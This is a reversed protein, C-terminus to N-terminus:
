VKGGIQGALYAAYHDTMGSLFDGARMYCQYYSMDAAPQHSVMLDLIRESRFNPQRGAEHSGKIDNVAGILATLLISINTYAGVEIENKRRDTFVYERTLQRAQTIGESEAGQLCSLLDGNFTGAMIAGYNGMFAKLAQQILNGIAATRCYITQRRVNTEDSPITVQRDGSLLEFVPKVQDFHLLHMELADEIDLIQYCIDDAAEMLYSLPHRCFRGEGQHLLGLEKCLQLYLLQESAFVNFKKKQEALTDTSYWPYKLVAGLTACSLRMGGDFRHNEIQTMIRFGQANAEFCNLDAREHETLSDHLLDQNSEFWHRIAYEGAHGFPPHGIDHGMCAAQVITGIDQSSIHAPLIKAEVLADGVAIGLSRGVSGVEISHTLRTHIHDNDAFPHVQTKRGLRRFSPSFVIRDYDRHYESRHSDAPQDSLTLRKGSLLAQWQM